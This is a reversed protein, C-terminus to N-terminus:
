YRRSKSSSRCCMAWQLHPRRNPQRYGGGHLAEAFCASWGKLILSSEIAHTGEFRPAHDSTGDRPSRSGQLWRARVDLSNCLYEVFEEIREHRYSLGRAGFGECAKRDERGRHYTSDHDRAASLGQPRFFLFDVLRASQGCGPVVVHSWAVPACRTAHAPVWGVPLNGDFALLGPPPGRKVIKRLTEKNEERRGRYAGGLRWYMGWCGNSAGWKGFL